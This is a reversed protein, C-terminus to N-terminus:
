REEGYIFWLTEPFMSVLKGCFWDDRGFRGICLAADPGGTFVLWGRDLYLRFLWDSARHSICLVDGDDSTWVDWDERASDFVLGISHQVQNYCDRLSPQTGTTSRLPTIM